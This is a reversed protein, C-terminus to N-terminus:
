EQPENAVEKSRELYVEERHISVADPADLGIVVSLGKQKLVMVVIDDSIRIAEGVKRSLVLYGM